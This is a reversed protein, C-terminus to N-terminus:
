PAVTPLKSWNPKGPTSCCASAGTRSTGSPRVRGEQHAQRPREHDRDPRPCKPRIGRPSRAEGTACRADSSDSRQRATETVCTRPSSTSGSSRSTLIRKPTSSVSLRRDAIRGETHDQDPNGHQNGELTSLAARDPHHLRHHTDLDLARCLTMAKDALAPRDLCRVREQSM